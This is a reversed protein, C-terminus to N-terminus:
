IDLVETHLVKELDVEKTNKNELNVQEQQRKFEEEIEKNKDM